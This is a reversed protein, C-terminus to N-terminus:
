LKVVAYATFTDENWNATADGGYKAAVAQVSILGLGGDEKTSAPLGEAPPLGSGCSNRARIVLQEGVPKLLLEIWKAGNTKQCAEVANELLNGLVICLEYNPIPLTKPLLIDTDFKIDLRECREAYSALLANVVHNACYRQIDQESLTKEVDALYAGIEEANGSALLERLVALHYKMDHRMIRLRADLDEMKQYHGRGTSIVRAAYDAKLKEKTKEHANIIAYCFVAFSWIVFLIVMIYQLTSGPYDYSVTLLVFSFVAGAAYVAWERTRGYALLRQVFGRGRRVMVTIYGTYLVLVILFITLQSASGGPELFLGVVAEVLYFQAILLIYQLFYIFIKQFASGKLMWIYIVLFFFMPIAHWEFPTGNVAHRWVYTLAMLAAIGLIVAGLKYKRPFLIIMSVNSLVLVIIGLAANNWTTLIPM